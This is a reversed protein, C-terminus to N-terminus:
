RPQDSSLTRDRAEDLLPMAVLSLKASMSGHRCGVEGGRLSGPTLDITCVGGRIEVILSSGDTVVIEAATPGDPAGLIPDDRESFYVTVRPPACTRDDPCEGDRKGPARASTVRVQYARDFARECHTEGCITDGACLAQATRCASEAGEPSLADADRDDAFCAHAGLALLALVALLVASLVNRSTV